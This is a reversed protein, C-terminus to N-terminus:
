QEKASDEKVVRVISSKTIRLGGRLVVEDEKEKITEVVGIIGGNNVIKDNKKLTSVLAQRQKEQQRMPRLLLFYGIIVILILPMMGMLWNGQPQEPTTADALLWFLHM